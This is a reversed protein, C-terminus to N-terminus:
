CIGILLKPTICLVVGDEEAELPAGNGGADWVFPITHTARRNEFQICSFLNTTTSATIVIIFIIIFIITRGHCVRTKTERRSEASIGLCVRTGQSAKKGAQALFHWIGKAQGGRTYALIHHFTIFSSQHM